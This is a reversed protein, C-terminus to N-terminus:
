PAVVSLYCADDAKDHLYSTAWASVVGIDSYTTNLGYAALRHCGMVADTGVSRGQMIWNAAWKGGDVNLRRRPRNEYFSFSTKPHHRNTFVM